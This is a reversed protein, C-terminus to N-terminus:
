KPKLVQQTKVAIKNILVDLQALETPSLESFVLGINATKKLGQEWVRNGADTIEVRIMNRRELDKVLRVL